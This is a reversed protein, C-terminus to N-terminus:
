SVPPPPASPPTEPPTAGPGPGAPPMFAGPPSSPPPMPPAPPVWGPPTAVAAGGAAAPAAVPAAGRPAGFRRGIWIRQFTGMALESRLLAGAGVTMAILGAVVGLVVFLTGLGHLPGVDAVRLLRGLVVTGEIAIVGILMSRVHSPSSAPPTAAVSAVPATTVGGPELPTPGAGTRAQQASRSLAGGLVTAGIILGWVALVVLFLVYGVLAALALPIGIITICLLAVVLALAILSPIILAWVLSGIGLSLGPSRRMTEAAASTRGPAFRVFVWGFLLLLLFWV